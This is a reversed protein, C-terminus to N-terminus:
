SRATPPTSTIASDRGYEPPADELAYAIAQELPMARGAAWAAGFSAEDCQARAAAVARDYMRQEDPWIPLGAAERLAEDAGWLRAAREPRGAEACGFALGRIGWIIGQKYNLDIALNLGECALARAREFDGQARIADALCILM